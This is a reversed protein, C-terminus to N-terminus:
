IMFKTEEVTSGSPSLVDGPSIVRVLDDDPVCEEESQLKAEIIKLYQVTIEEEGSGSDRL